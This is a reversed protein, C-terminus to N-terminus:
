VFLSFDSPLESSERSFIFMVDQRRLANENLKMVWFFYLQFAHFLHAGTESPIRISHRPVKLM